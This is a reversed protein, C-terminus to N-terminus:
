LIKTIKLTYFQTDTKLANLKLKSNKFDDLEFRFDDGFQTTIFKIAKSNYSKLPFTVETFGKFSFYQLNLKIQQVTDEESIINFNLYAHEIMLQKGQKKILLIFQIGETTPNSYM